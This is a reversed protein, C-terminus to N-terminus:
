RTPSTPLWLSHDSSIGETAVNTPSRRVRHAHAGSSSTWYEVRESVPPARLVLETDPPIPLSVLSYILFPTAEGLSRRNHLVLFPRTHDPAECQRTLQAVEGILM